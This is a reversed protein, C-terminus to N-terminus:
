NLIAELKKIKREIRNWETNNRSKYLEGYLIEVKASLIMINNHQIESISYDGAKLRKNEATFYEIKEQPTPTHGNIKM